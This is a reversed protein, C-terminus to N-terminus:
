ELTADGAGDRPLAPVSFNSYDITLEATGILRTDVVSKVQLPVSVGNRIDYKRVFDVRKLFISPNKVLYGSEQVRLYTAADIWIEGKFLGASKKRPTVQFMHVERGDLAGRGKYKFKYNAPVVALSPSEDGAAEAEASLYRAIVQSKVTNDGEFRLKEYTIRGLASIRRLAHLRGQKKLKPLSAAIEVDMSSGELLQAEARSAACYNAVITEPALAAPTGLAWVATVAFLLAAGAKM